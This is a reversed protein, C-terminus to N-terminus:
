SDTYAPFKLESEIEMEGAENTAETKGEKTPAFSKPRNIFANFVKDKLCFLKFLRYVKPGDKKALLGNEIQFTNIRNFDEAHQKYRLELMLLEQDMFSLFIFQWMLKLNWATESESSSDQLLLSHKKISTKVANASAM